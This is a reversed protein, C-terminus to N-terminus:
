LPEQQMQAQPVQPSSSPLIAMRLDILCHLVIPVLLTGTGIYLACLFAGALTTAVIGTVGQYMHCLGFIAAALVILTTGTVALDNHLTFLLWGRFVIEECIGASVAVGAFLMRERGTVPILATFDPLLKRWWPKSVDAAPAPAHRRARLRVIIMLILGILLGAAVGGVVGSDFSEGSASLWRGFATNGMQLTAASLKTRDFGLAILALVASVWEFRLIRMYFRSRAEPDGQAIAQKLQGYQRRAKSVDRIVYGALILSTLLSVTHLM